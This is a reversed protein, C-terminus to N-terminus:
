YFTTRTRHRPHAKIAPSQGRNWLLYDIRVATTKKGARALAAVMEEVAFIATARLEIEEESGAPILVGEAIRQALGDDVELIGDMRLVHPVLNDAFITLRDLDVFRGPGEGKFAIALDAALLQARKFFPVVRGRYIATDNWYPMRSLDAVLREASGEARRVAGRLDGGYESRAFRGLDAIARSFLAMLEQAHQDAGDQRFITACETPTIAEMKKASWPGFREFEEKLRTAVTFYGSLREIKQLHPFYGSGFNIADLMFLYTLTGAEDGFFHHAPDLEAPQGLDAFISNAYTEIRDRRVRVFRAADAVDRAAIRVADFLSSM